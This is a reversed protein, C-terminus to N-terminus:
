GKALNYYMLYDTTDADTGAPGQPGIPGQAKITVATTAPERIILTQTSGPVRVVERVAQTVTDM